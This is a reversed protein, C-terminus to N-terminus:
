GNLMALRPEVQSFLVNCNDMLQAEMEAETKRERQGHGGVRSHGEEKSSLFMRVLGRPM